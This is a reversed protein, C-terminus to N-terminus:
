CAWRWSSFNYECLMQYRRERYVDAYYVPQSRVLTSYLRKCLAFICSATHICNKRRFIPMNISSVHRPYYNLLCITLSYLFNHMLNPQHFLELSHHLTSFIDYLILTNSFLTSLIINPSLPVLYCPLPSFQMVLLKIIQVRWWIGNPYYFWSSYFPCPMYCTHPYSLLYKTPFGSPFLCNPLGLSLHSSPILISRWSTPHFAHVPDIHSLVPVPPPCKYVRYHVKPTWLM